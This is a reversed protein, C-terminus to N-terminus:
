IGYNVNVSSLPYSGVVLFFFSYSMSKFQQYQSDQNAKVISVKRDSARSRIYDCRQNLHQLNQRLNALAPGKSKGGLKEGMVNLSQVQPELKELEAYM